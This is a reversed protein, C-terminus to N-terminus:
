KLIFDASVDGELSLSISKPPSRSHNVRCFRLAHAHFMDFARAEEEEADSPHAASAIRIQVLLLRLHRQQAVADKIKWGHFNRTPGSSLSGRAARLRLPWILSGLALDLAMSLPGFPQQLATHSSVSCGSVGSSVSRILTQM